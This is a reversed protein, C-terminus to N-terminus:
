AYRLLVGDIGGASTCPGLVIWDPPEDIHIFLKLLHPRLLARFHPYSSMLKRTNWLGLNSGQVSGREAGSGWGKIQWYRRRVRVGTNRAGLANLISSTRGARPPAGVSLEHFHLHCCLRLTHSVDFSTAATATMEGRLKGV